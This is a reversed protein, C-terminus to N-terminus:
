NEMPLLKWGRDAVLEHVAAVTLLRTGGEVVDLGKERARREAIERAAWKEFGLHKSQHAHISDYSVRQHEPWDQMLPQIAKLTDRYSAPLLLM